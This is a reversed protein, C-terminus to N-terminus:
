LLFPSEDPSSLALVDGLFEGPRPVNLRLWLPVPELPLFLVGLAEITLYTKKVTIPQIYYVDVEISLELAKITLTLKKITIAKIYYV